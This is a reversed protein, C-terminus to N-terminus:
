EGPPPEREVHGPAGRADALAPLDWVLLPALEARRSESWASLLDDSTLRLRPGGSGSGSGSGSGGPGPPDYELGGGAIRATALAAVVSDPLDELAAPYRGTELAELRLAVAAAALATLEVGGDLRALFGFYNPMLLDTVVRFPDESEEMRRGVVEAARGCGEERCLRALDAFDRAMPALFAAEAADDAGGLDGPLNEGRELSALGERAVVAAPDPVRSRWRFLLVDMRELLERSTGARGVVWRVDRLVEAHIATGFMPGLLSPRLFLREAFRERLELGDAFAGPEGALLELRDRLALVRTARLLPLLHVALEDPGAGEGEEPESRLVSRLRLDLPLLEE